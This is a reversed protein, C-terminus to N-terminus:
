RETARTTLAKKLRHTVAEQSALQHHWFRIVRWGKTKLCRHVKRDRAKNNTIKRRWYAQNTQPIRMHRPCGHWFCGDIFIAVRQKPFAVDPTGTMRYHRRWGTIHASRLIAVFRGETEKNGRSHIGRMIQSRKEKTFM